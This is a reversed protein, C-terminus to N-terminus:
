RQLAVFGSGSCNCPWLVAVMVCYVAIVVGSGGLYHWLVAALVSHVVVLVVLLINM